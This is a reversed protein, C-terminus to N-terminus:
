EVVVIALSDSPKMEIAWRRAIQAGERRLVLLPLRHAIWDVNVLVLGRDKLTQLLQRGNLLPIRLHSEVFSIRSLGVPASSAIAKFAHLTRQATTSCTFKLCPKLIQVIPFFKIRRKGRRWGM